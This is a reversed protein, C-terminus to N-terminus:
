RLAESTPWVSRARPLWWEVVARAATPALRHMATAAAAYAHLDRAALAAVADDWAPEDTPLPLAELLGRTVRIADASLASGAARQAVWASAPPSCVAALLRELEGPDAPVVSVTPTTAVWRGEPDAAAELVKTQTAVVLKPALVVELWGGLRRSSARVGAVDVVPLQWDRKAFRVPRRGWAMEDIEVLGSTVLPHGREGPAAEAVHDVLGYHHDRFSGAVRAREGLVAAAPGPRRVLAPVGRAAAVQRSWDPESGSGAELVPVCVHVRAAFLREVPAWLEVLRAREALAARVPGADRASATSQPQVMAVRGADAVLEIGVLLFLAATDVYPGVVDGFRARLRALEDRSRATARSLQGQFPPNGVVAAFGGTPPAPWAAPGDLLVDAVVVHGVAPAVGNSWLAIAAETVAAALPDVDAGWLLDRAVVAPAQGAAVLAAGAALLLSGGGCAPDVVPGPRRGRALAARAVRHALPRPTYHAGRRQEDATLSGALADVLAWAAETATLRAGTARGPPLHPEGDDGAGGPPPGPDAEALPWLALGAPLEVGARRALGEAVAALRAARGVQTPAVPLPPRRAASGAPPM